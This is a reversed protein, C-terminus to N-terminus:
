KIADRNDNKKQLFSQLLVWDNATTIYDFM